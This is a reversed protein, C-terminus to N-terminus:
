LDAALFEGVRTSNFAHIFYPATHKTYITNYTEVLQSFDLSDVKWDLIARTLKNWLTLVALHFQKNYIVPHHKNLRQYFLIHTTSFKGCAQMSAIRILYCLACWHMWRTGTLKNLCPWYQISLWCTYHIIIVACCRLLWMAKLSIWAVNFVM